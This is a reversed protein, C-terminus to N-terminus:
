APSVRDGLYGEDGSLYCKSPGSKLSVHLPQQTHFWRDPDAFNLVLTSQRVLGKPTSHICASMQHMNMCLYYDGKRCFYELVSSHRLLRVSVRQGMCVFTLPIMLNSKYLPVLSHWLECSLPVIIVYAVVNSESM